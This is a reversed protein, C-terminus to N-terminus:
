KSDPTVYSLRPYTSKGSPSLKREFRGTAADWISPGGRDHSVLLSKDSLFHLVTCGGHPVEPTIKLKPSLSPPLIKATGFPEAGSGISTLALVIGGVATVVAKM